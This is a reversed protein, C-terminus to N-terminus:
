NIVIHICSLRLEECRELLRSVSIRIAICHFAIDFRRRFFKEIPHHFQPEFRVFSTYLLCDSLQSREEDSFNIIQLAVAYAGMAHDTLQLRGDVTIVFNAKFNECLEKYVTSFREADEQNGVAEAAKSMCDFVYATYVQAFTTSKTTVGSYGPSANQMPNLWDGLTGTTTKRMGEGTSVTKGELGDAYNYM